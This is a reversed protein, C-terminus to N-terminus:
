TKDQINMRCRCPVMSSDCLNAVPKLNEKLAGCLGQVENGLFTLLDPLISELAFFIAWQHRDSLGQGLQQAIEDTSSSSTRQEHVNPQAKRAKADGSARPIGNKSVLPFFLSWCFHKFHKYLWIKVLQPVNILQMAHCVPTMMASFCGTSHKICSNWTAHSRQMWSKLSLSSHEIPWKRYAPLHLWFENKAWISPVMLHYAFKWHYRYVILM